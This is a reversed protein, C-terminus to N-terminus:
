LRTLLVIKQGFNGNSIGQFKCISGYFVKIFMKRYLSTVFGCAKDPFRPLMSLPVFSSGCPGSLFTPLLGFLVNKLPREEEEQCTETAIQWMQNGYVPINILVCVFM